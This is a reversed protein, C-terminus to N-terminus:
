GELDDALPRFSRSRNFHIRRDLAAVAVPDPDVLDPDVQVRAVPDSYRGQVVQVGLRALALRAPDAPELREPCRAGLRVRALFKRPRSSL